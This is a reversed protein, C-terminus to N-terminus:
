YDINMSRDPEDRTSESIARNIIESIEFLEFLAADMKRHEPKGKPTEWHQWARWSKGILGACYAQAPRIKLGREAQIRERAQKIESPTPYENETIFAHIMELTEQTVSAGQWFSGDELADKAGALQCCVNENGSQYALALDAIDGVSANPIRGSNISLGTNVDYNLFMKM